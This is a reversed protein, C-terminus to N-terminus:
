KSINKLTETDWDSELFYKPCINSELNVNSMFM